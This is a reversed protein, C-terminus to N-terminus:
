ILIPKFAPYHMEGTLMWLWFEDHADERPRQPNNILQQILFHATKIMVAWRLLVDFCWVPLWVISLYFRLLEYLSVAVIDINLTSNRESAHQSFSSYLTWILQKSLGTHMHTHALMHTHMCIGRRSGLRCVDFQQGHPQIKCILMKERRGNWALETSIHTHSLAHTYTKTHTWGHTGLGTMQCQSWQTVDCDRNAGHHIVRTTPPESPLRSVHWLRSSQSTELLIVAERCTHYWPLVGPNAAVSTCLVLFLKQTFGSQRYPFPPGKVAISEEQLWPRLPRICGIGARMPCFCPPSMSLDGTWLLALFIYVFIVCSHVLSYPLSGLKGSMDTKPSHSSVLSGASSGCLYLM